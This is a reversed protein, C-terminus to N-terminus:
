MLDRCISGGSVWYQPLVRNGVADISPGPLGRHWMEDSSWITLSVLFLPLNGVGPSCRSYGVDAVRLCSSIFLGMGM